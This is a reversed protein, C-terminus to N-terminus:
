LQQNSDGPISVKSNYDIDLTQDFLLRAGSQSGLFLSGILPWTLEKVWSKVQSCSLLKRGLAQGFHHPTQTERHDVVELKMTHLTDM